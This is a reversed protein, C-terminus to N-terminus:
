WIGGYRQDGQEVYIQEELDLDVLLVKVSLLHLPPQTSVDDQLSEM